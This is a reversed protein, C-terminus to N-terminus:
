RVRRGIRDGRVGDNPDISFYIVWPRGIVNALPVFGYHRSDYSETRNDGLAFFSDRSVVVPGWQQSTPRYHASDRGIVRGVQWARMQARLAADDADSLRVSSSTANLQRGNRYLAGAVMWLTDGPLGAVRKVLLLSPTEVSRFVVLDDTKVVLAASWKATYLYDGVLLAPENAPNPIRFAQAVQSRLVLRIVSQWGVGLVLVTLIYLWWRNYWRLEYAPEARRAMLAAHLPMGTLWGLGVLLACWVNLPAQRIGLLAAVSISTVLPLLAVGVVAAIRPRGAYLHGLGPTVLNLLAAM